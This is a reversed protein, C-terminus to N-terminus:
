FRGSDGVLETIKPLNSFRRAALKVPIHHFLFLKRCGASPMTGRGAHCLETNIVRVARSRNCCGQCPHEVGMAEMLGRKGGGLFVVNGPQYEQLGM